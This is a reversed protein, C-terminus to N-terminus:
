LGMCNAYYTVSAPWDSFIGKIGVEKALVDLTRYKDGDNDIVETTTQHYWGGGDKLLGSREFTWTIIELGAAKAQYAYTSPVIDGDANVDLLMWMPPAIIEVGQAVLEEMNPEWTEPNTHDFNANDYRGDLYVAQRGFRPENEIWYKVDDLNFSQAWVKRPSVGAEKYENIMQQAYAEQTYDGQFPMEVSPSKLEPTYKVGLEKFLQISEKHSLLTGCSAYLDTRWSATANMYQEVTTANANAADMKGCLSKFEELTIDSTCCRAQAKTGAEPNAPSFPVSCKNALDTALINTTTHLDCQSHRCVLQRDKTFTVDCEVIGAGMRAAARYSEETHEPFQMAAGRHGISFDTKYFPGKECSKLRDKLEGEEMDDVLFFPRPGLEVTTKKGKHYKGHKHHRDNDHDSHAKGAFALSANFLLSAFAVYLLTRM